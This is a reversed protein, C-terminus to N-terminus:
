EGRTSLANRLVGEHTERVRMVFEDRGMQLTRSLFQRELFPLRAEEVVADQAVRFIRLVADESPLSVVFPAGQRLAPPLATAGRLSRGSASMAVLGVIADSNEEVKRRLRPEPIQGALDKVMGAAGGQISTIEPPSEGAETVIIVGRASQEDGGAAAGGLRKVLGAVEEASGSDRAYIWVSGGDRIPRGGIDQPWDPPGYHTCAAFPLLLLIALLRLPM